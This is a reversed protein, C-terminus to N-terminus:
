RNLVPNRQHSRPTPNAVCWRTAMEMMYYYTSGRGSLDPTRQNRIIQEVTKRIKAREEPAFTKPDDLVRGVFRWMFVCDQDWNCNGNRYAEDTLKGTCRIIEGQLTKAQGSPPVLERWLRGHERFWDLEKPKAPAAALDTPTARSEQYGKSLKERIRAAAFAEARARNSFSKSLAKGTSGIRGFRIVVANSRLQISWFKSSTGKKYEFRRESPKVTNVGSVM